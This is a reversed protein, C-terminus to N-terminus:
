QTAKEATEVKAVNKFPVRSIQLLRARFAKTFAGKSMAYTLDDQLSDLIAKIPQGLEQGLKLKCYILHKHILAALHSRSEEDGDFSHQLVFDLM